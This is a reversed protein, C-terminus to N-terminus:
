KERRLTVALLFDQWCERDFRQHWVLMRCGCLYLLEVIMVGIKFGNLSSMRVLVPIHDKSAARVYKFLGEYALLCLVCVFGPNILLVSLVLACMSHVSMQLREIGFQYRLILKSQFFQFCSAPQVGKLLAKNMSVEVILMGALCVSM